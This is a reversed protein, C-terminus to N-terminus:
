FGAELLVVLLDGYCSVEQVLTGGAFHGQGFRGDMKGRVDREEMKINRQKAFKLESLIAHIANNNPEQKSENEFEHDEEDYSHHPSKQPSTSNSSIKSINLPKRKRAGVLKQVDM